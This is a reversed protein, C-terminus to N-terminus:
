VRLDLDTEFNKVNAISPWFEETQSLWTPGHWWLDNEALKSAFVGRSAVDAPNDTTPVHKLIISPAVAKIAAVRNAVFM